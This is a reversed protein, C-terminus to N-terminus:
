KRRMNKLEESKEAIEYRLGDGVYPEEYVDEVSADEYHVEIHQTKGLQFLSM